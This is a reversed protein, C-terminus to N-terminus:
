APQLLPSLAKKWWMVQENDNEKWTKVLEDYEKAKPIHVTRNGLNSVYDPKIWQLLGIRKFEWDEDYKYVKGDIYVMQTEGDENIVRYWNFPNTDLQWVKGLEFTNIYLAMQEIDKKTLSNNAILDSACVADQPVAEQVFYRYPPGKPDKELIRMHPIGYADLIGEREVSQYMAKFVGHKTLSDKRVIKIVRRPEGELWFVQKKSGKIPPINKDIKFDKDGITITGEETEYDISEILKEYDVEPTKFEGPTQDLDKSKNGVVVIHTPPFPISSLKGSPTKKFLGIQGNLRKELIFTNNEPIAEVNDYGADSLIQRAEDLTWYSYKEHIEQRWNATYDKRMYFEYAWEPDLKIYETGNIEVKEYSFANGGEFEEHFREFLAKTSLLSYDLVGDQTAKTLDDFGGNSPIQMYIPEKGDPKVFDRIVIRGGPKLERFTAKVADTMRGTGGFTEIEHGSTSYYKVKISNDPFNQNAADGFVIHTLARDERAREMLEGSIDLAFVKAGQFTRAAKETLIGTGSGADVIIDGENIEGFHPFLSSAKAEIAADMLWTYIKYDRHENARQFKEAIPDERHKAGVAENTM